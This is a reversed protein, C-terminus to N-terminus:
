SYSEVSVQWWKNNYDPSWEMNKFIINGDMFFPGSVYLDEIPSKNAKVREAFEKAEAETEFKHTKRYHAM